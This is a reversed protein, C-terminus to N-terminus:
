SFSLLIRQFALSPFIHHYCFVFLITFLWGCLLGFSRWIAKDRLLKLRNSRNSTFCLCQSFSSLEQPYVTVDNVKTKSIPNQGINKVGIIKNQVVKVNQIVKASSCVDDTADITIDHRGTAREVNEVVSSVSSCYNKEMDGESSRDIRNSGPDSFLSKISDESTSSMGSLNLVLINSTHSSKSHKTGQCDNSNNLISRSDPSTDSM